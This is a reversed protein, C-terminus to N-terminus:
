ARVDFMCTVAVRELKLVSVVSSRCSKAFKLMRNIDTEVDAGYV